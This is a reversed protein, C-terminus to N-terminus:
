KVFFLDDPNDRFYQVPRCFFESYISFVTFTTFLPVVLAVPLLAIWLLWTFPHWWRLLPRFIDGDPYVRYVGTLYLLRSLWKMRAKQHEWGEQALQRTTLHQARQNLPTGM